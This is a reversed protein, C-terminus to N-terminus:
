PEPTPLTPLPDLTMRRVTLGSFVARCDEAVLGVGRFRQPMSVAQVLRGAVYLEVFSARALVRVAHDRAPALCDTQRDQPFFEWGWPARHMNGVEVSRDARLM